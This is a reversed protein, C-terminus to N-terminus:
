KRRDTSGVITLTPIRIKVRFPGSVFRAGLIHRSLSSLSQRATATSLGAVRRARRFAWCFACFTAVALFHVVPFNCASDLLLRLLDCLRHVRIVRVPDYRDLCNPGRRRKQLSHIEHIIAVLELWKLCFDVTSRKAGDNIAFVEAAM